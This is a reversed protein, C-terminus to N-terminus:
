YQSFDLDKLGLKNFEVKSYTCLREKNSDKYRKDLESPSSFLSMFGVLGDSVVAVAQEFLERGKEIKRISFDKQDIWLLTPSNVRRIVYCRRGDLIRDKLKRFDKQKTWNKRKSGRVLLPLTFEAIGMTTSIAAVLVNQKEVKNWDVAEKPFPVSGSPRLNEPFLVKGFEGNLIYVWQADKAGYKYILKDPACFKTSFILEQRFGIADDIVTGEDEYSSLSKYADDVRALISESDM